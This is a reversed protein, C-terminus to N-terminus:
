GCMTNPRWTGLKQSETQCRKIRPTVVTPGVIERKSQDGSAVAANMKIMKGRKPGVDVVGEYIKKTEILTKNEMVGVGNGDSKTRIPHNNVSGGRGCSNKVSKSVFTLLETMEACFM